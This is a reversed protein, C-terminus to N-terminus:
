TETATQRKQSRKRKRSRKVANESRDGQKTEKSTGVNQCERGKKKKCSLPNPGKARKRKFQPKDKIEMPNRATSSRKLAEVKITEDRSDKNEMIEDAEEGSLRNMVKSRFIQYERDDMHLRKEGATKVYQLQFASIPELFLTNRLGYILPVGPVERLKKRLDTDQSAVFFHESNNEGIVQIVCAEAGTCKEHECRAIILQQAAELAESYSSGLRKLEALVCRTTYLKVPATLINALADDAPTIRNVILHNIFTGDCLVKFPKRLGFCTTFFRLVKRHRRQKKVKM